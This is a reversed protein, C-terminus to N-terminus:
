SVTAEETTIVSVDCRTQPVLLVSFLNSIKDLNPSRFGNASCPTDLYDIRIINKGSAEQNILFDIREMLKIFANESFLCEGRVVLKRFEIPNDAISLLNAIAPTPM